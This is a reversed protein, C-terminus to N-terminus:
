HVGQGGRTLSCLSTNHANPVILSYSCNPHKNYSDQIVDRLKRADQVIVRDALIVIVFYGNSGIVVVMLSQQCLQCM